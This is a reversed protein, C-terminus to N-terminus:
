QFKKYDSVLYYIGFPMLIFILPNACLAGAFDFKLLCIFATTLGCGPCTLGLFEKWLCPICVNINTTAMLVASCFFYIGIGLLLQHRQAYKIMKKFM